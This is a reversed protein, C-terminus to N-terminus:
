FRRGCHRLANLCGDVLRTLAKQNWANFFDAHGSLVGGSALELGSDDWVPYRVILSIAPVEVPHTAPCRRGEPYAMHSKHDPSDLNQGDWCSPFTVHLRLGTAQLDPCDPPESSLPIGAAAGCNWFTVRFSQFSTAKANGAIMRLGQPFPSVREITRRRYYITAGLPEVAEGDRFLTPVWYAATDGPRQCTTGAALLSDLTSAANTSRNGVYTHDHSKGPQGPYIIVDDQNRHSFRCVSVFNVGQLAGRGGQGQGPGHGVLMGQGPDDGRGGGGALSVQVGVIAAVGLMAVLVVRLRKM